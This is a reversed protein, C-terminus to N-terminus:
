FNTIVLLNINEVNKEVFKFILKTESNGHRIFYQYPRANNETRDTNCDKLQWNTM